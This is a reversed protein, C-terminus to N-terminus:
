KEEIIISSSPTDEKDLATASSNDSVETSRTAYYEEYMPGFLNDLDEKSPISNSDESSDQFNLFNFDPGSNKCESAMATSSLWFKVHMTEMIKKSEVTITRYRQHILTVMLIRLTLKPENELIMVIM